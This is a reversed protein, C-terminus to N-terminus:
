SRLKQDPLVSRFPIGFFFTYRETQVFIHAAPYDEIRRPALADRGRSGCFEGQNATGMEGDDGNSKQMGDTTANTKARHCASLLGSNLQENTLAFLTSASLLLIMASMDMSSEDVKSRVTKIETFGQNLDETTPRM